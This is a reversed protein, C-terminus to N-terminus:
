SKQLVIIFLLSANISQQKLHYWVLFEYFHLLNRWFNLHMTAYHNADISLDPNSGKWPLFRNWAKWQVQVGM